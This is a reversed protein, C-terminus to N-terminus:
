RHSPLFRCVPPAAGRRGAWLAPFRGAPPQSPGQGPVAQPAACRRGTGARDRGQGLGTGTGAGRVEFSPRQRIREWRPRGPLTRVFPAMGQSYLRSQKNMNLIHLKILKGPAGGRVSFYFWSRPPPRAPRQARRPRTGPGGGPGRGTGTATRTSPAPATPGRGSTSSTTPPRCRTGGRRSWRSWAPWTARTSAPASSCGGAGCRWPRGGARLAGRPRRAVAVRGGM